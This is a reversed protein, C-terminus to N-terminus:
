GNASRSAEILSSKWDSTILYNVVWTNLLEGHWTCGGGSLLCNHLLRERKFPFFYYYFILIFIKIDNYTGEM